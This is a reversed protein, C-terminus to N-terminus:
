LNIYSNREFGFNKFLELIYHRDVFGTVKRIYERSSSVGHRLLSFNLNVPFQTLAAKQADPGTRYLYQLLVHSGIGKSHIRGRRYMCFLTNGASITISDTRIYADRHKFQPLYLM